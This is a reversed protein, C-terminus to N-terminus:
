GDPYCRHQVALGQENLYHRFVLRPEAPYSCTRDLLATRMEAASSKYILAASPFLRARFIDDFDVVAANQLAESLSRSSRLALPARFLQILAEHPAFHYSQALYALAKPGMGGQYIEGWYMGLWALGDTPSCQLLERARNSVDGVDRDLYRIDAQQISDTAVRLQILLAARQRKLDCFRAAEDADPSVLRRLGDTNYSEGRSLRDAIQRLSPQFITSGALGIWGVGLVVLVAKFLVLTARLQPDRNTGEPRSSM